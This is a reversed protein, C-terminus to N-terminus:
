PKAQTTKVALYRTGGDAGVVRLLLAGSKSKKRAAIAEDVSGVDKRAVEVIVDGVKLGAEAAESSTDVETVVVGEKVEDDVRFTSRTRETLPAVKVGDLLTDSSKSDPRGISKGAASAVGGPLRGLKARITREKGDRLVTFEGQEGPRSGGVSFRLKSVDNVPRGNYHTIVDGDELGAKEAPTDPMVENVLVGQQEVELAEALEPTLQGLMVGLYAREVEGDNILRDAIDVALNVPIAFGIGVNGGSRSFIATNIGIVRGRNDILAGGSNGPNISADTQIFNEYGGGTINLNSRGIASVIGHTVTKSLGFPNGIALVTDGPMLQSSDGLTVAPFDGDAGDIKLVALDTQPDRGVVEAEYKRGSDDFAVEVEDAGEIVHNNTLVYGDSTLVVGSGQGYSRPSPSPVIRPQSGDEDPAGFFPAFRPDKFLEDFPSGTSGSRSSTLRATRSSVVSVVSPSVKEVVMAYGGLQGDRSPPSDDINLRQVVPSDSRTASEKSDPSLAIVAAVSGALILSSVAFTPNKTKM